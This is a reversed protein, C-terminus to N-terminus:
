EGENQIIYMKGTDTDVYVSGAKQLSSEDSEKTDQTTDEYEEEDVEKVQSEDIQTVKTGDINIHWNIVLALMIGVALVLMADALNSVGAMASPSSEGEEFSNLSRKKRNSIM